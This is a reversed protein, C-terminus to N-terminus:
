HGKFRAEAMNGLGHHALAILLRHEADRRAQLDEEFVLLNPLSPPM